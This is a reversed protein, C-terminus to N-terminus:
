LHRETPWQFELCNRRPFLCRQKSGPKGATGTCPTWPWATIWLCFSECGCVGREPGREKRPNGRYNRIMRAARVEGWTRKDVPQDLPGWWTPHLTRSPSAILHSDYGRHSEKLPQVVELKQRIKTARWHRWFNNKLSKQQSNIIIIVLM